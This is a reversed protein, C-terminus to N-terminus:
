SQGKDRQEARAKDVLPRLQKNEALMRLMHYIFPIYNHRRRANEEKWQAQKAREMELQTELDALEASLQAQHAVMEEESEPLQPGESDTDMPAAGGEGESQGLAAAVWALRVQVQDRREGLADARSRVMAMLNFKIESAAYREIRQQVAAAAKSLWDAESVDEAIVIPGEKLGDLEYLKGGVPVYSIFHFVDDDKEYPKEDPVFPEPRAFSNHAARIAEQNSIAVGKLEAPFDAVFSKFERLQEGVDVGEANLLISLLAQTACANSIVQKAFFVGPAGGEPVVPRADTEARWKFLFILGHIKGLSSLSGEDLSYLEEVGVGKVGFSSVLETFVGPDSEVTCWGGSM